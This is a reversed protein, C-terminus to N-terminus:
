RRQRDRDECSGGQFNNRVTAVQCRATGLETDTSVGGARGSRWRAAMEGRPYRRQSGAGWYAFVSYTALSACRGATSRTASSADAPPKSASDVTKRSKGVSNGATTTCCCRASWSLTSGAIRRRWVARRILQACSPCAMPDLSTTTQGGPLYRFSARPPRQRRRLTSSRASRRHSTSNADIASAYPGRLTPTTSEPEPCSPAAPVAAIFRAPAVTMASLGSVACYGDIGM